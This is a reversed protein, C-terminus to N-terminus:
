AASAGAIAPEGAGPQGASQQQSNSDRLPENIQQQSLLQQEAHAQFVEIPFDIGLTNKAFAQQVAPPLVEFKATISESVPKDEKASASQAEATIEEDTPEKLRQDADQVELTKLQEIYFPRVEKQMWKPYAFYKEILVIVQSNTALSEESRAKTLLLRVDRDLLRIEERNLSALEESEPEYQIEEENMNELILDTAMRLVGEVAATILNETAQQLINGTREINRVGTATDTANLNSSEGDAASVVGFELQGTQIVTELLTMAYDDVENLNIRYVGPRDKSYVSNAPIHYVNKGGVV